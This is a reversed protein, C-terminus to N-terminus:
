AVHCLEQQAKDFALKAREAGLLEGFTKQMQKENLPGCVSLLAMGRISDRQMGAVEYPHVDGWWEGTSTKVQYLVSRAAAQNVSIMAAIRGASPERAPPVCQNTKSSMGLTAEGGAISDRPPMTPATRVSLVAVAESAIPSGAVIKKLDREAVALRQDGPRETPSFLAGLMQDGSAVISKQGGKEGLTNEGAANVPAGASGKMDAAVQHVYDVAAAADMNCARLLEVATMYAISRRVIPGSKQMADALATM